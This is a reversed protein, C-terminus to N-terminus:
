QGLQARADALKANAEDLQAQLQNIGTQYQTYAQVRRQEYLAARDVLATDLGTVQEQLALEASELEALQAEGTAILATLEEARAQYSANRDALERDLERAQSAILAERAAFAAEVAAPDGTTAAAAPLDPIAPDPQVAGAEPMFSFAVVALVVLATMGVAIIVGANKM